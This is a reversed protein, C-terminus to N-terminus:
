RTLGDRCAQPNPVALANGAKLPRGPPITKKILTVLSALEM